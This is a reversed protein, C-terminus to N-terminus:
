RLQDCRLRLHAQAGRKVIPANSHPRAHATFCPHYCWVVCAPFPHCRQRLHKSCARMTFLAPPLRSPVPLICCCWAAAAALACSIVLTSAHTNPRTRACSPWTSHANTLAPTQVARASVATSIAVCVCACSAVAGACAHQACAGTGPHPHPPLVVMGCRCSCRLQHCLSRLRNPCAITSPQTRM